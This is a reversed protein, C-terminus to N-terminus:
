LQAEFTGKSTEDNEQQSVVELFQQGAEAKNQLFTEDM